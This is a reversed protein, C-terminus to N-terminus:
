EYMIIFVDFFSNSPVTFFKCGAVNYSNTMAAYVDTPLPLFLVNWFDVKGGIGAPLCICKVKM